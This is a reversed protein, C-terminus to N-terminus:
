PHKALYADILEALNRYCKDADAPRKYQTATNCLAIVGDFNLAAVGDVKAIEPRVAHFLDTIIKLQRGRDGDNGIVNSLRGAEIKLRPLLISAPGTPLTTTTTFAPAETVAPDIATACGVLGAAAFTSCVSFVTVFVTRRM